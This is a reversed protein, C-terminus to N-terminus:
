KIKKFINLIKKHLKKNASVIVDGKDLDEKGSWNTIVGGSKKIIPIVPKIDFPKLNAEIIIDIKGEALRCYNYADAGTIKFFNRYNKFFKLFKYNKFTHLTNTVLKSNKLEKKKSTFIKKIKGKQFVFSNNNLTYYYKDLEPFYAFGLSDVQEIELGILNSYTPMGIIFSKTGDIPDIIWKFKKNRTVTKGEEGDVQHDPFKKLIIKTLEKQIKLDYYTVPDFERISKSKSGISKSRRLKKAVKGLYPAIEKLIFKEYVTTSYNM